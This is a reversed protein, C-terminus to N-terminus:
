QLQQEVLLPMAETLTLLDGQGQHRAWLQPTPHKLPLERSQLPGVQATSGKHSLRNRALETALRMRLEMLLPTEMELQTHTCDMRALPPPLCRTWRCVGMATARARVTLQVLAQVPPVSAAKTQLRVQVQAPEEQSQPSTELQM